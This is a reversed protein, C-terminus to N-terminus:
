KSFCYLGRERIVRVAAEPVLYDLPKGTAARARLDTSSIEVNPVTVEELRWGRERLGVPAPTGPRNVLVLGASHRVEELREWSALEASVDWGVIVYLEAGPHLSAMEAVTDATYSPGGRDIELRSAELGAVGGVAAKVLEYRDEAPTVDRSGAKQWPINAVMLVVRDLGAGARANVAAVLHGVHVPDFTGGFIGIRQAM